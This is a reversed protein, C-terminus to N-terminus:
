WGQALAGQVSAFTRLGSDGRELEQMILGYQLSSLGACGYGQISGGFAGFTAIERALNLPFTAREYHQAVVPLYRTEVWERVRARLQLDAPTLLEDLALFDVGQFTATSAAATKPAAGAPNRIEAGDNKARPHRIKKAM